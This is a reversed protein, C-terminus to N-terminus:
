SSVQLDGTLPVRPATSDKPKKRKKAKLAKPKQTNESIDVSKEEISNNLSESEEPRSEANEIKKINEM